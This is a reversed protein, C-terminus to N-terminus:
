WQLNIPNLTVKLILKKKIALNTSYLKTVNLQCLRKLYNKGHEVHSDCVCHVMGCIISDTIYYKVDSANWEEPFM